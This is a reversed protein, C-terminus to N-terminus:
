AVGAHVTSEETQRAGLLHRVASDLEHLSFPKQLVAMRGPAPDHGAEPVELWGTYLLVPLDPRLHRCAVVLQAGTLSPMTYDTVVLDFWEPTAAFTELADPSRTCVVVDYGLRTLMAHGLSRLAEDDDVLLVRRKEVQM